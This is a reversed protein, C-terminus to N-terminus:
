DFGRPPAMQIQFPVEEELMRMVTGYDPHTYNRYPGAVIKEVATLDDVKVTGHQDRSATM